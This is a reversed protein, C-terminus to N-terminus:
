TKFSQFHRNAVPTGILIEKQGSYRHLAIYFATLLGMFLTADAERCLRELDETLQNSLVFRYTGGNFTQRGTRQRDTPLELVPLEGSLQNKWYTMSAKISQQLLESTQWFAFDPYQITLNKLQSQIGENV